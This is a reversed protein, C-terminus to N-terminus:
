RARWVTAFAPPVVMEIDVLVPSFIDSPKLISLIGSPAANFAKSAHSTNMLEFKEVILKDKPKKLLM